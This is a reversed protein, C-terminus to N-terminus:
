FFDHNSNCEVSLQYCHSFHACLIQYVESCLKGQRVMNHMLAAIEPEKMRARYPRNQSLAQFVDAIAIIRSPTDLQEAQKHYPYGSGDLREHHNAAWKAIKSQPFIRFLALETDITHRKIRCYEADSLSAPKHLIDDPTKLKGIDHVLGAIYIMEQHSEDLDMQKALYRSLEAVKQSHQYTFSSKADVIHALFTGLSCMDQISLQQQTWHSSHFELTLSEINESEMALWFGDSMVLREMTDCVNPSFLSGSQQRLCDSIQQKHLIVLDDHNDHTFHARLYDLRDAVFLLAAVDKDFPAVDMQVLTEWPTHHYLIPNAFQSLVGCRKLAQYGRMCHAQADEPLLQTMLRTHEKTESVGCDHILGAFYCFEAQSQAWGLAKAGQYAIYAVRHNHHLDDVGVFDLARAVWILAQKLDVHFHPTSNTTLSNNKM